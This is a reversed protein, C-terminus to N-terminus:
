WATPYQPEQKQVYPEIEIQGSGGLVRVLERRNMLRPQKEPKKETRKMAFRYGTCQERAYLNVGSANV